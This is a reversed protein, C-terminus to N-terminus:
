SNQGPGPEEQGVAFFNQVRRVAQAASELSQGVGKGQLYDGALFVGPLYTLVKDLGMLRTRHGVTYQPVGNLNRFVWTRAPHAAIKLATLDQLALKALAQDGQRAQEGGISFKLLMAGQPAPMWELALSNIGQGRGPYLSQWPVPNSTESPFAMYIAAHHVHPIQNLLTTAQPHVKRFIKAAQPASTALIIADAEIQGQNTVVVWTQGKRAFGVAEFGTGGQVKQDMAQRLKSLLLDLGQPLGLAQAANAKRSASLLGGRAELELLHGYASRLSLEEAEAGWEAQALPAVYQKWVEEGLRRKIFGAFSEDEGQARPSFRETSLKLRSGVSLATKRLSEWGAPSAPDFAAPIDLLNGKYWVKRESQALPSAEIELEGLIQELAPTPFGLHAPGAELVFGEQRFTRLRGGM